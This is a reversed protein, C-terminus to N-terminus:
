SQEKNIRCDVIGGDHNMAVGFQAYDACAHEARHVVNGGRREGFDGSHVFGYKSGMEDAGAGGSGTAGTEGSGGGVEGGGSGAEGGTTSLPVKDGSGGADEDLVGCKRM